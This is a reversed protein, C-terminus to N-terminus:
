PNLLRSIKAHTYFQQNDYFVLHLSGEPVLERGRRQFERFLTEAVNHLKRMDKNIDNASIPTKTGIIAFLQYVERVNQDTLYPYPLMEKTDGLILKEPDSGKLNHVWRNYPQPHDLIELTIPSKEWLDNELMSFRVSSRDRKYEAVYDAFHGRAFWTALSEALERNYYKQNSTLVHAKLELDM